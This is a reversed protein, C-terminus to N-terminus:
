GEWGMPTTQAQPAKRDVAFHGVGLVVTRQERGLVLQGGLSLRLQPPHNTSLM